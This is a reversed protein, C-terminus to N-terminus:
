EHSKWWVFGGVLGFVGLIPLIHWWRVSGTNTAKCDEDGERMDEADCDEHRRHTSSHAAAGGVVPATNTHSSSSNHPISSRSKSGSRGGKGHVTGAMVLLAVSIGITLIILYKHAKM